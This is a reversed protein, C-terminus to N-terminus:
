VPNSTSNASKMYRPELITVSANDTGGFGVEVNSNNTVSQYM